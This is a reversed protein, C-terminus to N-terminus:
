SVADTGRFCTTTVSRSTPTPSPSTAPTRDKHAVFNLNSIAEGANVWHGGALGVRPDSGPDSLQASAVAASSLMAIAVWLPQSFTPTWRTSAHRTM